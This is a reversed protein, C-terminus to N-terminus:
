KCFSCPNCESYYTCDECGACKEDSEVDCLSPFRLTMLRIRTGYPSLNFMCDILKLSGTVPSENEDFVYSTRRLPEPLTKRAFAGEPAVATFICDVNSPTSSAGICLWNASSMVCSSNSFKASSMCSLMFMAVLGGPPNERPTPLIVDTAPPRPGPEHCASRRGLTPNPLRAPSMELNAEANLANPMSRPVNRLPGYELRM